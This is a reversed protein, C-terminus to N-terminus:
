SIGSFEERTFGWEESVPNIKLTIKKKRRGLM